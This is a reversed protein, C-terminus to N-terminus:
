LVGSLKNPKTKRDSLIPQWLQLAAKAFTQSVVRPDNKSLFPVEAGHALKVSPNDLDTSSFDSGSTYSSMAKKSAALFADWAPHEPSTPIDPSPPNRPSVKTSGLWANCFSYSAYRFLPIEGQTASLYLQVLGDLVTRPDECIFTRVQLKRGTSDSKTPKGIFQHLSILPKLPENETVARALHEVWPQLVHRQDSTKEEKLSLAVSRGGRTAASGTLQVGAITLDIPTHTVTGLGHEDLTQILTNALIQQERLLSKGHEGLPLVGQAALIEATTHSEYEGRIAHELITAPITYKDLASLEVPERDDVQDEYQSLYIKWSQKLYRETPKKLWRV